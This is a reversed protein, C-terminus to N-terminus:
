VSQPSRLVRRCGLKEVPDGINRKECAPLVNLVVEPQTKKRKLIFTGLHVCFEFISLFMSDNEGFVTCIYFTIHKSFFRSFTM